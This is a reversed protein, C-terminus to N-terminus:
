LDTVPIHSGHMDLQPLFMIVILQKNIYHTETWFGDVFLEPVPTSLPSMEM